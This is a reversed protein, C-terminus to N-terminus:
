RYREFVTIVLMPDSHRKVVVRYPVGRVDADYLFATVGQEVVTGSEIIFAVDERALGAENMRTVAHGTLRIEM